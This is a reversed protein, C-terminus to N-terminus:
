QILNHTYYMEIKGTKVALVFFILSAELYNSTWVKFNMGAISSVAELMNIECPPAMTSVIVASTTLILVCIVAVTWLTWKRASNAFVIMSPQLIPYQTEFSRWNRFFLALKRYNIAYCFITILASPTTGIVQQVCRHDFLRM